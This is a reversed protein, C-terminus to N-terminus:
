FHGEGRPVVEMVPRASVITCTAGTTAWGLRCGPLWLSCSSGNPRNGECTLPLKHSCHGWYFFAPPMCCLVLGSCWVEPMKHAVWREGGDATGERAGPLAEGAPAGPALFTREASGFTVPRVHVGPRKRGQLPLSKRKKKTRRTQVKKEKDQRAM